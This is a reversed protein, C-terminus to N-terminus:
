GGDQYIWSLCFYGSVKHYIPPEDNNSTFYVVLALIFSAVLILVIVPMVGGIMYTSGAFM